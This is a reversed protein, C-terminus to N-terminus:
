IRAFRQRHMVNRLDIQHIIHGYSIGLAPEAGSFYVAGSAQNARPGIGENFVQIQSGPVGFILCTGKQDRLLPNEMKKAPAEWLNQGLLWGLVNARPLLQLPQMISFHNDIYHWFNHWTKLCYRLSRHQCESATLPFLQYWSAHHSQQLTQQISPFVLFWWCIWSCWQFQPLSKKFENTWSQRRMKSGLLSAVLCTPCEFNPLYM